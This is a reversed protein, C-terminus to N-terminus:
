LIFGFKFVFMKSLLKFTVYTLALYTGSGVRPFCHIQIRVNGGRTPSGGAPTLHIKTHYFLAFHNSGVVCHFPIESPYNIMLKVVLFFSESSLAKM